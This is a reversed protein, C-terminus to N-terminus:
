GADAGGNEKAYDNSQNEFGLFLFLLSISQYAQKNRHALMFMSHLIEM